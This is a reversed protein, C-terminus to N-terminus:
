TNRGFNFFLNADFISYFQLINIINESKPLLKPLNKDFNQNQDFKRNPRFMFYSFSSITDNNFLSSFRKKDNSYIRLLQMGSRCIGSLSIGIERNKLVGLIDAIREPIRTMVLICEFNKLEM